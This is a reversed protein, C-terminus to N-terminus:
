ALAAASSGALRGLLLAAPQWSPRCSLSHLAALLLLM